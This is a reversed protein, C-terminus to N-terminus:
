SHIIFHYHIAISLSNPNLIHVLDFFINLFLLSGRVPPNGNYQARQHEFLKKRHYETAIRGNRKNTCLDTGYGYGFCPMFEAYLIERTRHGSITDHPLWPAFEFIPPALSLSPRKADIKKPHPRWDVLLWVSSCSNLDLVKLLLRTTLNQKSGAVTTTDAHTM